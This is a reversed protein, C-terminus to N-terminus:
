PQREGSPNVVIQNRYRLDVSDIKANTRYLEPLSTLLSHFREAFAEYGFHVLITEEGQVLLAKLDDSDALDVESIIWGSGPLEGALQQSFDHYLALRSKRERADGVSDLGAIIPFDFFAKEPKALLTGESDVLEISGSVTAFAVPTREVVHVLLRHPYVRNVVASRVWSISEVRRRKDDLSLEFINVGAGPPSDVPPIGLVNVIEERAVFHNGDIDVDKAPDVRFLSSSALFPGVHYGAFAVPVLVVVTWALGRLVRRLFAFRSRRVTVGQRRRTYPSEEPPGLDDPLLVKDVTDMAWFVLLRM